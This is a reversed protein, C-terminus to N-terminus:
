LPACAQLSIDKPSTPCCLQEPRIDSLSRTYGPTYLKVERPSLKSMQVTSMIITVVKHSQGSSQLYCVELTLVLSPASHYM